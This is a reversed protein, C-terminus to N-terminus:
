WIRASLCPALVDCQRWNEEIVKALASEAQALALNFLLVLTIIWKM